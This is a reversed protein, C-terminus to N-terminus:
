RAAIGTPQIEQVFIGLEGRFESRLGVVSFGLSSNEAKYLHIVHVPRGQAASTVATALEADRISDADGGAGGGSSAKQQLFLPGVDNTEACLCWVSVGLTKCVFFM